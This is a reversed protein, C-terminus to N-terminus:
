LPLFNGPPFVSSHYVNGAALTTISTATSYTVTSIDTSERGVRFYYRTSSTLDRITYNLAKTAGVTTYRSYYTGLSQQVLYYNLM